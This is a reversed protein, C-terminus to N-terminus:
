RPAQAMYWLVNNTRAANRMLQRMSALYAYLCGVSDGEDTGWIREDMTPETTVIPQDISRSLEGEPTYKFITDLAKLQEQNRRSWEFLATIALDANQLDDSDLCLGRWTCWVGIGRISENIAFEHKKNAAGFLFEFSTFRRKTNAAGYLFGLNEIHAAKCLLELVYVL